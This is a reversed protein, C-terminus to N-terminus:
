PGIAMVYDLLPRGPGRALNSAYTVHQHFRLM